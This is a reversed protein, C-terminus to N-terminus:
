QTAPRPREYGLQECYKRANQSPFEAGEDINDFDILEVVIGTPVTDEMVYPRGGSVTIFIKHNGTNKV